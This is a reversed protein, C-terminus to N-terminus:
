PDMILQRFLLVISRVILKNLAHEKLTRMFLSLCKIDFLLFKKAIDRCRLVMNLCKLVAQLLELSSEQHDSNDPRSVEFSEDLSYITGMIVPMTKTNLKLM